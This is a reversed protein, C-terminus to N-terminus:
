FESGLEDLRGTDRNFQINGAWGTQGSWRNKLVSLIRTDSHPDDKEVALSICIDSLQAISASGRLSQLTPTEGGEFGKDGSPRRLHSVAMVTVGLEQVVETRLRTMAIDILKREDNTALGSVLISIHDLVVVTVGLAKVMFSIRQIITDIDCSGFHDYLYVQRDEPFLEDFTAEIEEPTSQSRDVTINKNLHTGVLGLLTRKNTEELCLLGLREGSQHLKYAIERVLTTKGMGSGATITVLEGRRIGGTIANLQDYPYRISSAADDQGIVSRLDAAAVISDPRYEKAEFIASVVAASKGAVLCDNIDKMPLHSIFAKGVPLMQAAEMAAKRGADDADFCIVCKDFGSVYDYNDKIARVASNSGNPIGVTAAHYKGLCVHASITDLEGECIVLMKGKGWLHSGFLSMKKADGLISFGKDKTRLKQAVVTGDKGVYNAVQVPEGKHTAKFYGFKRCVDKNLKRKILDQYVGTILGQSVAMVLPKPQESTSDPQVTTGCAFCHTHGDDYLSNADSSGCDPNECPIHRVFESESEKIAIDVRKSGQM